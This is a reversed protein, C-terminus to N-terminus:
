EFKELLRTVKSTLDAVQERLEGLESLQGRMEAIDARARLIEARPSAGDNEPDAPKLPPGEPLPDGYFVAAAMGKPWELTWDVLTLSSHHPQDTQENELKSWSRLNIGPTKRQSIRLRLDLERSKKAAAEQSLRLERRRERMAEALAAKNPSTM